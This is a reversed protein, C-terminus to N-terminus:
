FPKIRTWCPQPSGRQGQRAPQHRALEKVQDYPGLLCGTGGAGVRCWRHTRVTLACVMPQGAGGRGALRVLPATRRVQGAQAHLPPRRRAPRSRCAGRGKRPPALGPKAPRECSMVTVHTSRIVGGRRCHQRKHLIFAFKAITRIM